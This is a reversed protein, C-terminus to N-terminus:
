IRLPLLPLPVGGTGHALMGPVVVPERRLICAARRVVSGPYLGCVALLLGLRQRCHQARLLVLCLCSVTILLTLEFDQGGHLFRDWAWFQQTVPMTLLEIAVLFLLLRSLRISLWLPNIAQILTVWRITAANLM